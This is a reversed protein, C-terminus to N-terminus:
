LRGFRNLISWMACTVFNFDSLNPPGFVRWGAKRKLQGHRAVNSEDPVAGQLLFSIPILPDVKSLTARVNM